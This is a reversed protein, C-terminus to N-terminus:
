QYLSFSGRKERCIRRETYRLYPDQKIFNTSSPRLIGDSTRPDSAGDKVLTIQTKDAPIFILDNDAIGDNNLDGNYTYSYRFASYRQFIIGISSNTNSFFSKSYTSTLLFRGPFSGASYGIEEANPNIAPRYRWASLAVSSSGDTVSKSKGFTYSGTIDLGQLDGEFSKQLQFTTYYSYGKSTNSLMVASTAIDSTTNKKYIIRNDAGQM